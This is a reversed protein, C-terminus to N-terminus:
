MMMGNDVIVANCKEVKVPEWVKEAIYPEAAIYEDLTERSPFDM